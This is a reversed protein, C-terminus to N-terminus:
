LADIEADTLHTVSKILDVSMGAKFMKSAVEIRVERRGQEFGIRFNKAYAEEYSKILREDYGNFRGSRRKEELHKAIIEDLNDSSQDAAKYEHNNELMKNDGMANALIQETKAFAKIKRSWFISASAKTSYSSLSSVM